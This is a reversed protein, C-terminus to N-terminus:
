RSLLSASWTEEQVYNMAEQWSDFIAIRYPNRRVLVTWGASLKMVRYPARGFKYMDRLTPALEDSMPAFGILMSLQAMSGYSM